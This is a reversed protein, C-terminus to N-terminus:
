TFYCAGFKAALGTFPLHARREPLLSALRSVKKDVTQVKGSDAVHMGQLLICPEPCASQWAGVQVQGPLKLISFFMNKVEGQTLRLYSTTEGETLAAERETSM